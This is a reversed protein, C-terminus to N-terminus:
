SAAIVGDNGTGNHTNNNNEYLQQMMKSQAKQRDVDVKVIGLGGSSAGVKRWGRGVESLEEDGSLGLRQFRVSTNNLVEFGSSGESGGTDVCMVVM